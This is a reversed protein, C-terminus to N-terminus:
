GENYDEVKFGFCWKWMLKQFWNFRQDVPISTNCYVGGISLISKPKPLQMFVSDGNITVDKLENANFEM